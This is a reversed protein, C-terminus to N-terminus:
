QSDFTAYRTQTHCPAHAPNCHEQEGKTLTAPRTVAPLLVHSVFEMSVQSDLEEASWKRQLFSRLVFRQVQMMSTSMTFCSPIGSKTWHPCLVPRYTRWVPREVAPATLLQASRPTPTSSVASGCCSCGGLTSSSSVIYTRGHLGATRGRALPLM